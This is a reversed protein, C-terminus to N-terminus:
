NAKEALEGTPLGTWPTATVTAGNGIRSQGDMVVEEGEKIGEMVLARAGTVFATKVNRQEVKNDKSVVYAYLGNRGRALAKDPVVM